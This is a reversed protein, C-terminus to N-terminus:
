AGQSITVWYKGSSIYEVVVQNLSAQQDYEGIINTTWNTPLTLIHNGTIYLTLVKSYSSPPYGSDTITTSGTLTLDHTEYDSWVIDYTGTVTSDVNLRDFSKHSKVWEKTTLVKGTSENDILAETLSDATVLGSQLVKFADSAIGIGNGTIRGNGVVFRRFSNDNLDGSGATTGTGDTGNWQTSPITNYVGCVFTGVQNARLGIGFEYTYATGNTGTFQNYSGVLSGHHNGRVGAVLTSNNDGHVLLSYIDNLGTNANGSVINYSGYTTSSTTITNNDGIMFNAAGGSGTITNGSWIEATNGAILLNAEHYTGGVTNSDGILVNADSGIIPLAKTLDNGLFLNGAHYSPIDNGSYISYIDGVTGSSSNSYNLELLNASGVNTTGSLSLDVRQGSIKTTTGTSLTFEQYSGRLDSVTANANTVFEFQNYNGILTSITNSSSGQLNIENITGYLQSTNGNSSYDIENRNLYILNASGSGTNEIGQTDKVLNYIGTLLNTANDSYNETRNVFGYTNSSTNTNNYYTNNVLSANSADSIQDATLYYQNISQLSRNSYTTDETANAIMLEIDGSFLSPLAVKSNIFYGNTVGSVDNNEAWIYAFDTVSANSGIEAFLELVSAENLTATDTIFLKNLGARFTDATYTAGASSDISNIVGYLDTTGDGGDYGGEVYVTNYTATGTSIQGSDSLTLYNDSPTVVIHSGDTADFNVQNRVAKMQASGASGEYTMKNQLTYMIDTSNSETKTFDYNLMLQTGTGFSGKVKLLSGFTQSEEQGISIWNTTTSGEDTVEQLTPIPNPEPNVVNQIIQINDLNVKPLQECEISITDYQTSNFSILNLNINVNYWTDVTVIQLPALAFEASEDNTVSNIFKIKFQGFSNPLSDVRTQFSIYGNTNVDLLVDNVFKVTANTVTTNNVTIFTNTGNYGGLGGTSNYLVNPDSASAWENPEGTNEDYILETTIEPPNTPENALFLKEGVKVQKTPNTLTPKEPNSAPTGEIIFFTTQSSPTLKELVYIDWRNLSADAANHSVLASEYGNYYEQDIIYQDAWVTRNLGSEFIVGGNIIANGSYLDTFQPIPKLALGTQSLNVLPAYNYKGFYTNDDTDDLQLFTKPFNSNIDESYILKIDDINYTFLLNPDSNPEADIEFNLLNISTPPEVYYLLFFETWPITVTVYDASPIYGYEGYSIIKTYTIQNNNPSRFDLKLRQFQSSTKIKFRISLLNEIPASENGTFKILTRDVNTAEIHTTNASPDNTSAFNLSGTTRYFESTNWEVNEDYIQYFFSDEPETINDTVLIQGIVRQTSEIIDPVLPETSAQGETITITGNTNATILDIRIEGPTTPAASLTLSTQPASYLINGILYADAYCDYTLGSGSYYVGFDETLDESKEFFNFTRNSYDIGDSIANNPYVFSTSLLGNGENTFFAQRWIYTKKNELCYIKLDEYYYYAKYDGLGLDQLEAITKVYTKSDLAFQGTNFIGTTLNIDPM